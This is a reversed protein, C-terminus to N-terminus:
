YGNEVSFRQELSGHNGRVDTATVVLEYVGDPVTRTDFGDAALRFRYVGPQMYSYHKGFVSMNQHTGRAYVRWFANPAPLYRRVDYAIRTPVVVKGDAARQIRWEVLAPTVPLDHWAGAIPESPMDYAAAVLEVRGRLLEPMLEDGSTASRSEVSGVTPATSDTYPGLHGPALPNVEIGNSLETLHVHHVGRIIHGLVTSDAEVQQGASVSPRVHWYKFAVGGGRDVYVWEDTTASVRGSEVPYVATGDPASIDVGTHFSFQGTGSLLTRRTPPGAFVTRPDGFTGRVPHPRDFPKVPWGYAHSGATSDARASVGARAAIGCGLALALLAVSLLCRRSVGHRLSHSNTTM